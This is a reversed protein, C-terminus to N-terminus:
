GVPPELGIAMGGASRVGRRPPVWAPLSWPSGVTAARVRAAVRLREPRVRRRQHDVQASGDGIDVALEGDIVETEEREPSLKAMSGKDTTFGVPRAGYLSVHRDRIVTGVQQGGVPAALAPRALTPPATSGPGTAV